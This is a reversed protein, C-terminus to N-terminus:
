GKKTTVTQKTVKIPVFSDINCADLFLAPNFDEYEAIFANAIDVAFEIVNAIEESSEHPLSNVKDVMEALVYRANGDLNPHTM